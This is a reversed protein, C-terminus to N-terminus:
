GSYKWPVCLSRRSVHARLVDHRYSKTFGRGRVVPRSPLVWTWVIATKGLRARKCACDRDASRDPCVGYNQHEIRFLYTSTEGSEVNWIKQRSIYSGHSLLGFIKAGPGEMAGRKDCLKPPQLFFACTHLKHFTLFKFYIVVHLSPVVPLSPVAM